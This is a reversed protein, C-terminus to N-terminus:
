KRGVMNGNGIACFGAAHGCNIKGFGKRTVQGILIADGLITLCSTAVWPTKFLLGM